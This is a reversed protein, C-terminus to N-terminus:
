AIERAAQEFEPLHVRVHIHDAPASPVIQMM